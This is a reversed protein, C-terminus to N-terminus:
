AVLVVVQTEVQVPGYIVPSPGYTTTQTQGTLTSVVVASVAATQAGTGGAMADLQDDNLEHGTLEKIHAKVDDATIDYGRAKAFAIISEIGSVEGSLDAQMKSDTKLDAIFREVDQASM